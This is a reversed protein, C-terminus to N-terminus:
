NSNKKAQAENEKKEKVLKNLFMQLVGDNEEYFPFAIRMGDMVKKHVELPQIGTNLISFWISRTTKKINAFKIFEYLLCIDDYELNVFPRKIYLLSIHELYDLSVRNDLCFNVCEEAMQDITLARSTKPLATESTWRNYYDTTETKHTNYNSWSKAKEKLEGIREVTNGLSFISNEPLLKYKTETFSLDFPYINNALLLAKNLHVDDTNIVYGINEGTKLILEAIYLRATTGRAAYYTKDNKDYILFAFKGEWEKYTNQLNEIISGTQQELHIMFSESDTKNELIKKDSSLTGNHAFVYKEGEFPHSNEESIVKKGSTATALRAHALVTPKKIEDHIIERLYIMDSACHESRYVKSSYFGFGDQNKELSNVVLQAYLYEKAVRLSSIKGSEIKDKIKIFTLECM